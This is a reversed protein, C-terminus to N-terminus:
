SPKATETATDCWRHLETFFHRKVAPMKLDLVKYM